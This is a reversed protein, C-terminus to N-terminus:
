PLKELKNVDANFSYDAPAEPFSVFPKGGDSIETAGENGGSTWSLTAKWEIIEGKAAGELIFVEPDSSSVRYPFDVPKTVKEGPRPEEVAEFHPNSKDLDVVYRRAAIGGGCGSGVLM